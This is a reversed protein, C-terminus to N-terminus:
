LVAQFGQIGVWFLLNQSLIDLMKAPPVLNTERRSIKWSKRRRRSCNKFIRNWLRTNRSLKAQPAQNRDRFLRSFRSFWEQFVKFLTQFGPFCGQFGQIKPFTLTAARIRGFIADNLHFFMFEFLSSVMCLHKINIWHAWMGHIIYVNSMWISNRLTQNRIYRGFGAGKWIIELV